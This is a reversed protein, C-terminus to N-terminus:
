VSLMIRIIKFCETRVACYVCDLCVLYVYRATTNTAINNTKYQHKAEAKSESHLTVEFKIDSHQIAEFNNVFHQATEWSVTFLLCLVVMNESKLDKRV